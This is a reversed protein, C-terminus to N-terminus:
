TLTISLITAPWGECCIACRKDRVPDHNLLCQHLLQEIGKTRVGRLKGGSAAIPGVVDQFIEWLVIKVGAETLEM